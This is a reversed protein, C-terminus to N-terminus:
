RDGWAARLEAETEPRHCPCQCPDSGDLHVATAHYDVCPFPWCYSSTPPPGSPRALDASPEQAIAM